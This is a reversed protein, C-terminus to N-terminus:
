AVQLFYGQRGIMSSRYNKTRPLNLVKATFDETKYFIPHDCGHQKALAAKAQDGVTGIVTAGLHKAWQCVFALGAPRPM